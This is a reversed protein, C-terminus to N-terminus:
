ADSTADLLDRITRHLTDAGIPKQLIAVSSRGKLSEPSQITYGSILIAKVRTNADLITELLRIGNMGSMVADSIVLSIEATHQEFLALGSEGDSATLVNYGAAHILAATSVLVQPEDDVLLITENTSSHQLGAQTRKVPANASPIYVQFESGSDVASTVEIFGGCQGITAFAVSLGLGTGHGIEKTTFFPEFIREQVEPTMGCGNDRVTVCAFTGPSCNPHTKLQDATIHRQDCYFGLTGGNPMADRANLCLNMFVQSLLGADAYVTPSPRAIECTLESSVSLTPKVMTVVSRCIKGLDVYDPDYEQKRSFSLLQRTLSHAFESAAIVEDLFKQAEHEADIKLKALNTFGVMAQLMNNFDHAVGAALSGVAEMKQAFRLQNELQQRDIAAGLATAAANLADLEPTSWDRFSRCDDFGIFGIWHGQCFVPMVVLSRIEQDELIGREEEPFDAILGHVPQRNGLVDVWRQFTPVYPFNQLDPNDIQADIGPAVWEAIQSTLLEGGPSCHNEFFYTRNAEAAQGLRQLAEDLVDKWNASQLLLSAVYSVASLIHERRLTVVPQEPDFSDM